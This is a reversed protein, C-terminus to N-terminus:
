KLSFLAKFWRYSYEKKCPVVSSPLQLVYVEEKAGKILSLLSYETQLFDEAFSSVSQHRSRPGTDIWSTIKTMGSDKFTEILCEPVM